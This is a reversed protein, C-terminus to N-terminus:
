IGISEIMPVVVPAIAQNETLRLRCTTVSSNPRRRAYQMLAKFHGQLEQNIVISKHYSPWHCSFQVWFLFYFWIIPSPLL